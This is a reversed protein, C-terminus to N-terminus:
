KIPMKERQGCKKCVLLIALEGTTEDMQSVLRVLYSGCHLCKVDFQRFPSERPTQRPQYDERRLFYRAGNM